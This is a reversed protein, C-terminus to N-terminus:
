SDRFNVDQHRNQYNSGDYKLDSDRILYRAPSRKGNGCGNCSVKYHGGCTERVAVVSRKDTMVGKVVACFDELQGNNDMRTVRYFDYFIALVLIFKEVTNRKFVVGYRRQDHCDNM